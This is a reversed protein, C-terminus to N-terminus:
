TDTCAKAIALKVATLLNASAFPKALMCPRNMMPALNRLSDASIDVRGSIIVVPLTPRSEHLRMALEIGTMNPMMIDTVVCDFRAGSDLLTLAEVGDSSVRVFYNNNELIAKILGRISQEDDVVLVSLPNAPVLVDGKGLNSPGRVTLTGM